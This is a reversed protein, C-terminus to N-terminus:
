DLMIFSAWYRPDEYKKKVENQADNFADRKTMGKILNSYFLQMMMSTAKDDVEWLSMIITNVGANKFARQLGWVGEGTIEGLGTECASLVAVDCRNLDVSAIEAATLIGDEVGEPIVEGQWAKNAGSLLLGSRQLPSISTGLDQLAFPNSAFFNNQEAQPETLYFGHTAIHIIDIDNGSLAKFSEENGNSSSFVDCNIKAKSFVSSIQNVEDMTGPLYDWGKRVLLSELGRFVDPQSSLTKRVNESEAVMTADDVDYKLGGYLVAKTYEHQPKNRCIERTSTLRIVDYMADFREEGNYLHEVALKNICGAPSFYVTKMNMLYPALPAWILNYANESVANEGYLRDPAMAALEELDDTKCLKIFKPTDWYKGALLAASFDTGEVFDRYDVFEVALADASLRERVDSYTYNLDDTYDGNQRLFLTIQREIVSAQAKAEEISLNNISNKEGNIFSNLELLEAYQSIIGENNSDYIAKVYNQSTSLLLGKSFLLYDYLNVDNEGKSRASFITNKVQSYRPSTVFKDREHSNYYVANSIYLQKYADTLDSIISENQSGDLFLSAYYFLLGGFYRPSNLNGNKETVDVAYGLFTKANPNGNLFLCYGVTGWLSAAIDTNDLNNQNILDHCKHVIADFTEKDKEYYLTYLLNTYALCANTPSTRELISAAKLLIEKSEKINGSSQYIAGVNMLSVAYKESEPGYIDMTYQAAEKAYEEATEYDTLYHYFVSKNQLIAAYMPHQKGYFQGVTDQALDFYAIALSSQGLDLYCLGINNLITIYDISSNNGTREIEEKANLFYDVAKQPDRHITYYFFGLNDLPVFADQNYILAEEAAMKLITEAVAPDSHTYIQGELNHLSSMITHRQSEDDWVFKESQIIDYCLKLHSAADEYKDFSILQNAVVYEKLVYQVSYRGYLNTTLEEIQEVVQNFEDPRYLITLAEAKLGLYNFYDESETQNLKKALEEYKPFLSSETIYDGVNHNASILLDLLTLYSLSNEEGRKQYIDSIVSGYKIVESYKESAICLNLLSEYEKVYLSDTIYDNGLLEDRKEIQALLSLNTHKASEFDDMGIYCYRLSSLEDLYEDSTNGKLEEVVALSKIHWEESSHYDGLMEYSICICQYAERANPFTHVINLKEIISICEEFAEIASAFSKLESFYTVGLYYYASALFEENFVTGKWERNIWPKAFDICKQMNISALLWKQEDWYHWFFEYFLNFYIFSDKADLSELIKQAKKFCDYRYQEGKFASVNGLRWMDEAYELSNEGFKKKIIDSHILRYKNAEELKQENFAAQIALSLADLYRDDSEGYQSKIIDAKQLQEDFSQAKISVSFSLAIVTFVFPLIRKM